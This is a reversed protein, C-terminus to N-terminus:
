IEDRSLTIDHFQVNKEGIKWIFINSFMVDFLTFNLM